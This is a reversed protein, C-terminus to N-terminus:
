RDSLGNPLCPFLPFAFACELRSCGPSATLLTCSFCIRSVQSNCFVLPVVVVVIMMMMMIMMMRQTVALWFPLLVGSITGAATSLPAQSCTKRSVHLNTKCLQLDLARAQFVAAPTIM